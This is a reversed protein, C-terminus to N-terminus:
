YSGFLLRLGSPSAASRGPRSPGCAPGSAKAPARFFSVAGVIKDQTEFKWRLEGTAADLAYLFTDDSGVYLTGALYTPAAEVAGGTTFSWIKRGTAFDLCYVNADSSGVYVRGAAVVPSSAVPGATKFRWRLKLPLSLNMKALGLMGAGGRSMPWSAAEGPRVRGNRSAGGSGGARAARGAPKRVPGSAAANRGARSADMLAPRKRVPALRAAVLVALVVGASIVGITLLWKMM